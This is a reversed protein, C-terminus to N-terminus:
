KLLPRTTMGDGGTSTTSTTSPATTSTTDNSTVPVSASQPKVVIAYKEITFKYGTLESMYHLVETFPINRLSLTIKKTVTDDQPVQVVFSANIKGGSNKTALQRLYDLATDFTSDKLEVQPLILKKLQIELVGVKGAKEEQSEIMKLFRTATDNGPDIQLVFSFREKATDTDGKALADQAQSLVHAPTEQALGTSAAVVFASVILLPLLRKM